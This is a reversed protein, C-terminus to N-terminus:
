RNFWVVHTFQKPNFKDGLREVDSPWIQHDPYKLKGDSLYGYGDYDIFGGCDVCELWEEMTMLHDGIEIPQGKSKFFSIMTMNKLM